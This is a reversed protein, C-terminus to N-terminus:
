DNDGEARDPIELDLVSLFQTKFQVTFKQVAEFAARVSQPDRELAEVLDGEIAEVAAIAAELDARMSAELAGAGVEILLDDFGVGEGGPDSGLFARQFAKLNNIIHEKSQGAFKSELAEPCTDTDCDILGAPIALKMDKTEKEVYFLADTLANLAERTSGYLPGPGALEALFNGEAPDWAARLEAARASVLAALTHAYDARRQQLEPAIADWAGDRNIASNPACANEDGSEFLLVELADLGRVNIPEAAFAAQNAFNGEVIEQDVRCNNVLPWSYIEDRLDRGGIVAGMVGAPGVQFVEAQQWLAMAARWAEQAAARDAEQQSASWAGAAAELAQAAAEFRVLTDLIVREGVNALLARRTTSIGGEPEAEPTAEAEPEPRPGPDGCSAAILAALGGLALVHCIRGQNM